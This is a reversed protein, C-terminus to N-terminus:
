PSCQVCVSCFSEAYQETCCARILLLCFNNSIHKWVCLKHNWLDIYAQHWSRKIFIMCVNSLQHRATRPRLTWTTAHSIVHVCTVSESHDTPTLGTRCQDEVHLECWKRSGWCRMWMRDPDGTICLHYIHKIHAKLFDKILDFFM